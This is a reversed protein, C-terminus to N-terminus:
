FRFTRVEQADRGLIVRQIIQGRKIRSSRNNTGQIAAKAYAEVDALRSKDVSQLDLSNYNDVMYYFDNLREAVEKPELIIKEKLMIKYIEVFLTLFDSKKWVRSRLDFNCKEIFLLVEDIEQRLDEKLEFDDNYINLYKELAEERDFYTSMITIVITLIFTLHKMRRVENSSFIRHIEFFPLETLEIGFRKFEGNYQSNYIEMDNLAYSTANIRKFVEKIEEMNVLGLDRVVVEYELFNRKSIEDLESYPTIERGLKIKDSGTFYQYLTQIRQQGDVLMETGQGTEPNVDGSAIYIEPFPYGRLVTDLFGLKDKNSWVLQRQFEPDPILTGDRLATILFRLKRNTATTRM